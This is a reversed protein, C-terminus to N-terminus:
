KKFKRVLWKLFLTVSFSVVAGVGALVVTKFIDSSDMNVLVTLVTGGVTGTITTHQDTTM